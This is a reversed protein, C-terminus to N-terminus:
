TAYSVYKYEHRIPVVILPEYLCLQCSLSLNMCVYPKIDAPILDIIKQPDASNWVDIHIFWLPHQSDIPRRQQATASQWATTLMFLVLLLFNKKM